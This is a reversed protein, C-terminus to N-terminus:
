GFVFEPPRNRDIVNIEVDQSTELSGDSATVTVIYTATCGREPCGLPHADDYTTQYTASDMWGSFSVVVNDGDPDTATVPINVVEGEYVTIPAIPQLVPPRNRGEVVLTFNYTTQKMGDDLIVYAPYTGRDGFEPTFVGNQDFPESFTVTVDGGDPDFAQVDLTLTETEQVSVTVGSDLEELSFGALSEIVPARYVKNVVVEVEKLSEQQGDNARIFVSHTGADGFTTNRFQSTMWGEYNVTIDDGELDFINCNLNVTEGENVEFVPPCDIVPPRNARLVEVLVFETSVLIGDDARVEVLYRGENGIETLWLGQENFPASFSLSVPVGDPSFASIPIRILEGEVGRVRYTALSTDEVTPIDNDVVLDQQNTHNQDQVNESENAELGVPLSVPDQVM